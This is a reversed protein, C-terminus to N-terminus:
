VIGKYNLDGDNLEIHFVWSILILYNFLFFIFDFM